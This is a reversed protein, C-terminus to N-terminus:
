EFYCFMVDRCIFWLALFMLSSMVDQNIVLIFLEFDIYNTIRIYRFYMINLIQHHISILLSKIYSRYEISIARDYSNGVHFDDFLDIVKHCCLWVSYYTSSIFMFFLFLLLPFYFLFKYQTSYVIKNLFFGLDSHVFSLLSKLGFLSFNDRM